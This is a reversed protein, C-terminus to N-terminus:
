PRAGDGRARALIPDILKALLGFEELLAGFNVAAIILWITKLMSDMGGRSLLADVDKLGSNAEYGTAMATWVAKVAALPAALDPEGLFRQMAQPQLFAGCVGALLAAVIIALASPSKKISMVLLALLPILNLPTIWFLQDLQGLEASTPAPPPGVGEGGLGLLAFVVIAILFAPV